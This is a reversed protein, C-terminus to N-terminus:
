RVLYTFYQGLRRLAEESLDPHRERLRVVVEDGLDVLTKDDWEVPMAMAEDLLSQVADRVAESLAVRVTGVPVAAGVDPSADDGAPSPRRDRRPLGHRAPCDPVEVIGIKKAGDPTSRTMPPPVEAVGLAAAVRDAVV